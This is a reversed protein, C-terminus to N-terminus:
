FNGLLILRGKWIEERNSRENRSINPCGYQIVAKVWSNPGKVKSGILAFSSCPTIAKPNGGKRWRDAPLQHSPHGFSWYNESFNITRGRLVTSGLRIQGWFPLRQLHQYLDRCNSSKTLSFKQLLTIGFWSDETSTEFRKSSDKFEHKRQRLSKSFSRYLQIHSLDSRSIAKGPQIESTKFVHDIDLSRYHLFGIFYTGHSAQSMGWYIRSIGNQSRSGYSPENNEVDFRYCNLCTKVIRNSHKGHEKTELESM